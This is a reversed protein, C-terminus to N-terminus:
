GQWPRRYGPDNEVLEMMNVNAYDRVKIMGAPDVGFNNAWVDRVFSPLTPTETKRGEPLNTLREMILYRGSASITHCEAFAEHWHTDRVWTWILWEIFNTFPYQAAVKIVTGPDNKVAAKAMMDRRAESVTSDRMVQLMYDLPQLGENASVAAAVEARAEALLAPPKKIKNPTGKKRGGTKRGWTM